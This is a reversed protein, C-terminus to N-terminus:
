FLKAFLNGLDIRTGYVTWYGNYRRNYEGYDWLPDVQHSFDGYVSIWDTGLTARLGLKSYPTYNEFGVFLNAIPDIIDIGGHTELMLYPFLKPNWGLHLNFPTSMFSWDDGPQQGDAYIKMSTGSIDASMMWYFDSAGIMQPATVINMDLRLYRMRIDPDYLSFTTDRGNALSKGKYTRHAGDAFARSYGWRFWRGDPVPAPKAYEWTYTGEGKRIAENRAAVENAETNAMGSMMSFIFGPEELYYNVMPGVDFELGSFGIKESSNNKPNQSIDLDVDSWNEIQMGTAFRSAEAPVALFGVMALTCGLATASWPSFSSTKSQARTRQVKM